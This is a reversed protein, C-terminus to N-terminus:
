ISTDTSETTQFNMMADYLKNANEQDQDFKKQFREDERRDREAQKRQAQMYRFEEVSNQKFADQPLATNLASELRKAAYDIQRKAIDAMSEDRSGEAERKQQDEYAQNLMFQSMADFEGIGSSKRWEDYKSQATESKAELSDMIESYKKAQDVRRNANSERMAAMDAEHRAEKEAMRANQEEIKQRIELEREYRYADGTELLSRIRMIGRLAREIDVVADLVKTLQGIMASTMPYSSSMFRSFGDWGAAARELATGLGKLVDVLKKNIEIGRESHRLWMLIEETLNELQGSVTELGFLDAGKYKEGMADLAAAVEEAKILRDAIMQDLDGTFREQDRLVQELFDRIPVNAETFQRVETMKLTGAAVVDTYAKAIRKFKEANGQAVSNFQRLRISVFEANIGLTLLSQAMELGAETSLSTQASYEEVERALKKAGKVNGDMLMAMNKVSMKFEDITKMWSMFVGVVSGVANKLFNFAQVLPWVTMTVRGIASSVKGFTSTASGFFGLPGENGGGGQKGGLKKIADLARQKKTAQDVAYKDLKHRERLIAEFRRQAEIQTIRTKEEEAEKLDEVERRYMAFLEARLANRKDVDKANLRWNAKHLREYKAALRDMDSIRENANETLNRQLHDDEKRIQAAGSKYGAPNLLIEYYLSGVNNKAM